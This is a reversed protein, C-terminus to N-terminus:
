WESASAGHPPAFAAGELDPRRSPGDQDDLGMAMGPATWGVPPSGQMHHPSVDVDVFTDEPATRLLQVIRGTNSTLTGVVVAAKTMVTIEAWLLM